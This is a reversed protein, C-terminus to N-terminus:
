PLKPGTSVVRFQLPSMGPRAIVLRLGAHECGKNRGLARGLSKARDAAKAGTVEAVAEAWEPRLESLAIVEGSIWIRDSWERWVLPLLGCVIPDPRRGGASRLAAIETLVAGLVQLLQANGDAHERRLAGMERRLDAMSTPLM